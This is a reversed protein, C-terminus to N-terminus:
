GFHEVHIEEPKLPAQNPPGVVVQKLCGLIFYPGTSLYRILLRKPESLIRFLWELGIQRMWQPARPITGGIFDFAAGVTIIPMELAYANEYMWVEQRPCGLGVFLIRAGSNIIENRLEEQEAQNTQRFMSPCAGAICLDPLESALRQRMLDLTKSTNGFFFVPLGSSAALKLVSTTLDPGPVRRIRKGRYLWRAALAVPAGDPTLIDFASLRSRFVPRRYGLTVGHLALAAVTLRRQAHAASIILRGLDSISTDSIVSGLVNRGEPLPSYAEHTPKDTSM